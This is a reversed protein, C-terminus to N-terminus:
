QQKKLPRYLIAAESISSIVCLFEQGNLMMIGVIGYIPGDKHIQSNISTTKLNQNDLYKLTEEENMEFISKENKPSERQIVLCKV